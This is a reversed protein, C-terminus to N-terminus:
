VSSGAASSRAFIKWTRPPLAMREAQRRLIDYTRRHMGKPRGPFQEDRRRSSAVGIRVLQARRLAQRDITRRQSKYALKLCHRCAFSGHNDYLIAVRRSCHPVPCVFWPRMGGYTCSTWTFKVIQGPPLGGGETSVGLLALDSAGAYGDIIGNPEGERSSNILFQCGPRLYGKRHLVRIDIRHFQETTRKSARSGM